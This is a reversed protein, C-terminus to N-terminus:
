LVRADLGPTSSAEQVKYTTRCGLKNGMWDHLYWLKGVLNWFARYSVAHGGRCLVLKRFITNEQLNIDRHTCTYTLCREIHATNFSGDKEHDYGVKWPERGLRPFRVSLRNRGQQQQQRRKLRTRSQAVGYVAAWWAGGDRLNELCSCQLPNGNGEGIHSLSFYM